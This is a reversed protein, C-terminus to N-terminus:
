AGAAPKSHAPGPLQDERAQKKRRKGKKTARRPKAGPSGGHSSARPSRPTARKLVHYQAYEVKKDSLIPVWLARFITSTRRADLFDAQWTSNWTDDLAYRPEEQGDLDLDIVYDCDEINVYRDMEEANVDNFGSRPASTGNVVLFPQPLQGGFNSKLFRLEAHANLDTGRPADPLFFHSPFRYWEKGVCVNIPESRLEVPTAQVTKWVHEYAGMPAGYYRVLAMSRMVGLLFCCSILCHILFSVIKNGKDADEPNGGRSSVILYVGFRWCADLVFAAAVCLLPYVVFLFREEKHAQATMFAVWLWLPSLTALTHRYGWVCRLDRFGPAYLLPSLAALAAAVNFNLLLNVAYFSAPETGYLESGSGDGGGFVNYLVINLPACILGNYYASDVAVTIAIWVAFAAAAKGVARLVGFEVVMHLGMPLFVLGSFPWGVVVAAAGAFLAVFARDQLFAAYSLMVMYMSFTSPLFAPGAHFMGASALLFVLTYAGVRGGFRCVVARYFVAECLACCLGLALRTGYFVTVKEGVGFWLQAIGGLVAHAGVYFWSRLGYQPAYEWTQLGRGYLLYHLPEWYNFTEDCDSIALTVSAVARVFALALIATKFEPAWPMPERPMPRQMDADHARNRNQAERRAASGGGDAGAGDGGARRRRTSTVRKPM